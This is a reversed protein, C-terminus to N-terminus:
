FVEVTANEIFDWDPDSFITVDFRCDEILIHLDAIIHHNASKRAVLINVM